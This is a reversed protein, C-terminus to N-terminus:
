LAGNEVVRVERQWMVELEVLLLIIPNESETYVKDHIKDLRDDSVFV